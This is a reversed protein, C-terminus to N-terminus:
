NLTSPNAPPSSEPPLAAASPPPAPPLTPLEASSAILTGPVTRPAVVNGQPLSLGLCDLTQREVIRRMKERSVTPLNSGQTITNVSYLNIVAQQPTLFPYDSGFVLKDSVDQQCASQLVNYLQWPRSAIDSVDAYFHRHKGILTICAEHWPHGVQALVVRLDPFARGVEDWLHPQSFEMMCSLALHTGTHIFLPMNLLLLEEYLRMARTHAPHCGTAAPSFTVGVLGLDRARRVSKIFDPGLPDIGAFGLYKGPARAVYRAVQEHPISAGIHLSEFGHIIAYHVTEMAVDYADVSTDARQWPTGRYRHRLREATGLGLQEPREWLHTHVDVIM